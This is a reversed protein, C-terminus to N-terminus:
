LLDKKEPKLRISIEEPFNNVFYFLNVDYYCYFHTEMLIETYNVSPM